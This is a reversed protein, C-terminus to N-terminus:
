GITLRATPRDLGASGEGETALPHDVAKAVPRHLQGAGAYPSLGTVAVRREPDKTSCDLQADVEEVGGIRVSREHGLVQQALRQVGIVADRDGGLAPQQPGARVLPIRKAARLVQTLAHLHAQAPEAHVDDIEVLQMAHIRLNRELVLDACEPSMRDAPLIRWM